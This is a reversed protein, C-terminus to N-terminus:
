HGQVLDLWTSAPWAWYLERRRAVEALVLAVADQAILRAHPRAGAFPSWSGLVAQLPMTLRDLKASHVPSRGNVPRFAGAQDFRHEVFWYLADVEAATLVADHDYSELPLPLCGVLPPLADIGRPERSAHKTM